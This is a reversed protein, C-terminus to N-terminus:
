AQCFKICVSLFYADHLITMMFLVLVVQNFVCTYTCHVCLLIITELFIWNIATQCLTKVTTVYFKIVINPQLALFNPNGTISHSSCQVYACFHANCLFLNLTHTHIDKPDAVQWSCLITVFHQVFLTCKSIWYM